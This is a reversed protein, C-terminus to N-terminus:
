TASQDLAEGLKRYQTGFFHLGYSQFFVMAPTYVMAMLYLVLLLVGGGMVSVLAVLAPSWTIEVAQGLAGAFVGVLVVPVFLLLVALLYLIAFFIGVALSLATKVVLFLLYAPWNARLMPILRKWGEVVGLNELAMLPMVWDKTAVHILVAGIVIALLSSVLYVGAVILALAYEEPADFVGALWFMGIPVGLFAALVLFLALTLGIWWLFLRRGPQQWRTWAERLRCRDYLVSDLLIFRFVAAVYILFISLVGIVVAAVALWVPGPTALSSDGGTTGPVDFGFGGGAFDWTLLSVVSLRLWRGLRFPQFLQRLTRAFAPGLTDVAQSYGAM